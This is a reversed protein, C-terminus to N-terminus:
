IGPRLNTRTTRALISAGAARERCAPHWGSLDGSRIAARYVDLLNRAFAQPFTFLAVGALSILLVKRYGIIDSRKGLWPSALIDALGTVAIAFGSATALWGGAGVFGRVMLPIIPGAALVTLQTLLM